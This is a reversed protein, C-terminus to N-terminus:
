PESTPPEGSGALVSPAPIDGLFTDEKPINKIFADLADPAVLYRTRSCDPHQVIVSPKDDYPIDPALDVIEPQIATPMFPLLAPDVPTLVNPTPTPTSSDPESECTPTASSEQHNSRVSRVQTFALVMVASILAIGGLAFLFKRQM